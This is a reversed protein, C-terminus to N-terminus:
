EEATRLNSLTLAKYEEFKNNAIAERIEAMLNLYFYVNHLSTLRLGLIEGVSLLHRIFARSYGRCAQCPCQDDIPRNDEAYRAAKITM